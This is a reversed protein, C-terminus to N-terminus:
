HPTYHIITGDQFEIWKGGKVVLDISNMHAKPSFSSYGWWRYLKNPGEQLMYSVPPHHTVQEMYVRTGDDHYGQYTEGLVPNLPKDFRHCTYLFSLSTTMVLKMRRVPDTEYAAATLYTPTHVTMTAIMYLISESSMCYIPFSVTSLNFSGSFIKQGIQKVMHKAATRYRAVIEPDVLAFGGEKCADEARYDDKRQSPKFNKALELMELMRQM